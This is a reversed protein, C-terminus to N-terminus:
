ILNIDRVAHLLLPFLIEVVESAGSPNGPLNLIITNGCVGASARSLAAMPQVCTLELSAWSMLGHCKRDLVSDTAEPTVDRTAFGTGGTTFIIDYSSGSQTKGSSELLFNRIEDFEDPVITVCLHSLSIKDAGHKSNILDIQKMIATNVSPGSLDGTHYENAAARDSVTLIAIKLNMGGKPVLIENIRKKDMSSTAITGVDECCVNSRLSKQQTRDRDCTTNKIPHFTTDDNKPFSIVNRPM